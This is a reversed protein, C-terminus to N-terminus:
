VRNALTPRLGGSLRELSTLSPELRQRWACAPGFYDRPLPQLRRKRDLEGREGAWVRRGDYDRAM